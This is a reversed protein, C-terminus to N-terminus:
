TAADFVARIPAPAADLDAVLDDDVAALLVLAAALREAKVPLDSPPDALSLLADCLAQSGSTMASPQVKPIGADVRKVEAGDRPNNV